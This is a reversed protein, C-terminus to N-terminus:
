EKYIKKPDFIKEGDIVLGSDTVINHFCSKFGTHCAANGIQNVKILLTDNDCDIRIEMVEQFHGSTEGKEWLRQKTRSWYHVHGSKITLNFAERNMFGLMLIELSKYDQIIVPIIGDLKNFDIDIESM